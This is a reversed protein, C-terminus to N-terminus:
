AVFNLSRLVGSKNEKTMNRIAYAEGQSDVTMDEVEASVYGTCDAICDDCRVHGGRLVDEAYDTLEESVRKWRMTKKSQEQREGKRM